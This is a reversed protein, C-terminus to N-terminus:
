SPREALCNWCQFFQGDIKEGCRPCVWRPSRGPHRLERLVQEAARRDNENTLWLQPSVQDAPLEGIGAGIFRNRIECRVGASQLVDRWLTAIMLNDATVLYSM